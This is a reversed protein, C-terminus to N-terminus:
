ARGDGKKGARRVCLEAVIMQDKLEKSLFECRQNEEEFVLDSTV